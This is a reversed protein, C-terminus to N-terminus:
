SRAGESGPRAIRGLRMVSVSLATHKEDVGGFRESFRYCRLSRAVRSKVQGGALTIRM